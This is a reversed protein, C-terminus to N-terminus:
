RIHYIGEMVEEAPGTLFVPAEGGDWEAWLTGGPVDVRVKSDVLGNVVAAAMTAAVGTGCAMTLGAGREWHRMRLHTRSLVEVAHVNTRKPFLPHREILQGTHEMQRPDWVSGFIVVHPNGMSVCTAQYVQDDVEIAQDIVTAEADGLMGMAGRTLGPAGMNVRIRVARGEYSEVIEPYLVGAGTEVSQKEGLQGRDYLWKALARLGNGCMESESGDANFIRMRVPAIQSSMIVIIGDSGVGFHRDSMGQAIDGWPIADVDAMTRGDIYLYDNGLGHMKTFAIPGGANLM